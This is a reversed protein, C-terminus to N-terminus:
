DVLVVPYSPNFVAKVTKLLAYDSNDICTGLVVLHVSGGIMPAPATASAKGTGTGTDATSAALFLQAGILPEGGDTTCRVAPLVAGTLLVTGPTGGYAAISMAEALTGDARARDWTDAATPRCFDGATLALTNQGTISPGVGAAAGVADLVQQMTAKRTVMTGVDVVAFLDAPAVGTAAPLESIKKNTM